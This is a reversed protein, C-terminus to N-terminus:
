RSHTGIWASQAKAAQLQWVAEELQDHFIRKMDSIDEELESIQVVV